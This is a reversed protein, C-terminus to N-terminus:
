QKAKQKAAEAKKRADLAKQRAIAKNLQGNLKDYTSKDLIGIEESHLRWIELCLRAEYFNNHALFDNFYNRNNAISARYIRNKLSDYLKQDFTGADITNSRWINLAARASYYADEKIAREVRDLSLKAQRILAKQHQDQDKQATTGAASLPGALGAIFLLVALPILLSKPFFILM